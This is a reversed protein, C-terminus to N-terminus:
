KRSGVRPLLRPYNQKTIKTENARKTFSETKQYPGGEMGLLSWNWIQGASDGSINRWVSISFEAKWLKFVWIFPLWISCWCNEAGSPGPLCARSKVSHWATKREERNKTCHARLWPWVPPFRSCYRRYRDRAWNLGQKQETRHLLREVDAKPCNRKNRSIFSNDNSMLRLSWLSLFLSEPLRPKSWGPVPTDLNINWNSSKPIRYWNAASWTDRESCEM